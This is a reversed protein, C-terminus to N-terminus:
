SCSAAPAPSGGCGRTTSTAGTISSRRRGPIPFCSRCAASLELMQDFVADSSHSGDIVIGLRNMEAVWQRGLPSLGNWRAEGTASDALQNTRSHVPGAMRLGLSTSPPRAPDPGRRAALWEGDLHLRHAQRRPAAARRRGRDARAGDPGSERRDGAPDGRDAGFRRRARRYLGGPTNEGQRTYVVFFGGDLGGAEMRPLDTQSGDEGYRHLAGFDWRGDDWRGPIDLHTDLVLLREHILRDEPLSTRAGAGLRSHRPAAGPGPRVPHADDNRRRAAASGASAAACRRPARPSRRRAAAGGRARRRQGSRRRLRQLPHRAAEGEGALSYNASGCAECHIEVSVDM